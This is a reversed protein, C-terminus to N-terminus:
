AGSPARGTRAAALWQLVYFGGLSKLMQRSHWRVAQHWCALRRSEAFARARAAPMGRLLAYRGLVLCGAVSAPRSTPQSTFLIEIGSEAATAAVVPAYFGGPVSATRVPEGLLDALRRVSGSWEERLRGAPLHSIRMPHSRSHSGIVHGRRRLERIQAAGLFGPAGIRDTTIFFHGRWGRAELLEAVRSHASEGGDDFTLFLRAGTWARAAELIGAPPAASAAIADLHERFLSAEIKYADAAAGSFGSADYRSADVVDHYMLSVAQM